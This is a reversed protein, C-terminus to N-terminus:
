QLDKLFTKLFELSNELMGYMRFKQRKASPICQGRESVIHWEKTQKLKVIPTASIIDLNYIGMFM